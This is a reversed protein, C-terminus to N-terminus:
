YDFFYEGQKQIRNNLVHREYVANTTGVFHEELYDMTEKSDAKESEAAFPLAEYIRMAPLGVTTVISAAKEKDSKREM